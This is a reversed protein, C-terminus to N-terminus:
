NFCEVGGTEIFPCEEPQCYIYIEKAWVEDGHEDCARVDLKGDGCISAHITVHTGDPTYTATFSCSNCGSPDLHQHIYSYLSIM